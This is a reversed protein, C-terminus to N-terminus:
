RKDREYVLVKIPDKWERASLTPAYRWFAYVRNDREYGKVDIIGVPSTERTNSSEKMVLVM